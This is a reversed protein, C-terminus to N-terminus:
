SYVIFTVKGNMVVAPVPAEAKSGVEVRNLWRDLKGAM